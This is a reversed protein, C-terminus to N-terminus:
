YLVSVDHRNEHCYSFKSSCYKLKVTNGGCYQSGSHVNYYSYVSYKIRQALM